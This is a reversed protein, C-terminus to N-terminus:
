LIHKEDFEHNSDSDDFTPKIAGKSTLLEELKKNQNKIAWYIPTAKYKDPSNISKKAGNKLLLNILKTNNNKCALLLPTDGYKNATNVDYISIANKNTDISASASTNTNTNKNTNTYSTIKNIIEKVAELNDNHCAWLLPTNKFITDPHSITKVDCKQVIKKIM